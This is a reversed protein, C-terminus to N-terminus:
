GAPGSPGTPPSITGGANSPGRLGAPAAVGGSIAGGLVGTHKAYAALVVLIAFPGVIEPVFDAAVGMLLTLLGIAWVSKYVSGQVRGRSSQIGIYTLMLGGAVLVTTKASGANM